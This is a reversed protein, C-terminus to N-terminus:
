GAIVGVLFYTVAAMTGLVLWLLHTLRYDWPKATLWLHGLLEVTRGAGIVFGAVLAATASAACWLQWALFVAPNSQSSIFLVWPYPLYFELQLWIPLFFSVVGVTLFVILAGLIRM